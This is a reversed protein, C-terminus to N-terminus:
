NASWADQMQKMVQDITFSAAKQRPPFEEFTALFKGVYTQAPVLLFAHDLWWDWYTNSTISAREYPDTRLNFLWPIRTSVYPESWVLMTGQPDFGGEGSASLTGADLMFDKVSIRGGKVVKLSANVKGEVGSAKSWRVMPISLNSNAMDAAISADIVGDSGLTADLEAGFSGSFFDGVPCGLRSIDAATVETTKAKIKTKLAAGEVRTSHWDLTIPVAALDL